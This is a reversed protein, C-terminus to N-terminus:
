PSLQLTQNPNRHHGM